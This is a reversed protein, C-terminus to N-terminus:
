KKVTFSHEPAIRRDWIKYILITFDLTEAYINAGVIVSSNMKPM